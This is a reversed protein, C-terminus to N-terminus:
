KEIEIETKAMLDMIFVLNFLFFYIWFKTYKMLSVVTESSFSSIFKHLLIFTFLMKYHM